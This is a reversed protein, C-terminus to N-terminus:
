PMTAVALLGSATAIVAIAIGVARLRSARPPVVVLVTAAATLPVSIPAVPALLVGATAAAFGVACVRDIAAAPRKHRAIVRRVAVVTSGFGLAWGLWWVLAARLAVGGAVLVVASAGTLAVAAALEGMTSHESRRAALLVVLTACATVAVALALVQPALALGGAGTAVLLPLLAGLRLKARRGDLERARAGRGGLAIALPEHALFAICSAVSLAIGAPSPARACWAAILPLVLQFYAGHERPLLSRRPM